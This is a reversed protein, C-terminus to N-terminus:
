FDEASGGYRRPLEDEPITPLLAAGITRSGHGVVTMKALTAASLFPKFFWFIWTLFSPVNVFFKRALFEPYHSQFISSAESAANKSNETRSSMSVGEYDHIQVVQDVTEFDLLAITQEMFAVRWRLFRQVDGFVASLNKNAGYLNYSVPHGQNDKGYIKGLKGFIDEPFKEKMAGEVDFSQRWRLTSIFMDKAEAPNLNRARLFKMLVISVRADKPHAPDITVGWMTYSSSGADPNDPFAESFILPLQSRFTRLAGWEASSFKTTLENQPEADIDDATAVPDPSTTAPPISPALQSPIGDIDPARPAETSHPTSTM